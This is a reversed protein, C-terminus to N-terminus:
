KGGDLAREDDAEYFRRRRQAVPPELGTHRIPSFGGGRALAGAGNEGAAGVYTRIPQPPGPENINM